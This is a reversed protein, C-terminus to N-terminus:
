SSESTSGQSFKDNDLDEYHRNLAGEAMASYRAAIRNILTFQAQNSTRPEGLSQIKAICVDLREQIEALIGPISEKTHQNRM